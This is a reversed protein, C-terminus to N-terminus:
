HYIVRGNKDYHDYYDEDEALHSCEYKTRNHMHAIEMRLAESASLHKQDCVYKVQEREEDNVRVMIYQNRPNDVKPRGPKRKEVPTKKPRGPKRKIKGESM